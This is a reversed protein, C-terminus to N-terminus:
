GNGGGSISAHMPAGHPWAVVESYRRVVLLQCDCFIFIFISSTISSLEQAYVASMLPGVANQHQALHLLHDCLSQDRFEAFMKATEPLHSFLCGIKIVFKRM